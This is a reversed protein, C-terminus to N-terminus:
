SPPWAVFARAASWGVCFGETAHGAMAAEQEKLLEALRAREAMAGANFARVIIADVAPGLEDGGNPIAWSISLAYDAAASM